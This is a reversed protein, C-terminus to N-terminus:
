KIKEDNQNPHKNRFWMNSINKMYKKSNEKQDKINRHIKGRIKETKV